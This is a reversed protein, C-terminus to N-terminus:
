IRMSGPQIIKSTPNASSIDPMFVILLVDNNKLKYLRMDTKHNDYNNLVSIVPNPLADGVNLGPNQSFCHVALLVILATFFKIKRM